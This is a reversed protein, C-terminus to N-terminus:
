EWETAMTDEAALHQLDKPSPGVSGASGKCPTVPMVRVNSSPDLRLPRTLDPPGPRWLSHEVRPNSRLRSVYTQPRPLATYTLTPVGSVSGSFVDGDFSAGEIGLRRM